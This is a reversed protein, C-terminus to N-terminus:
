FVINEISYKMRIIGKSDDKSSQKNLKIENEKEEEEITKSKNFLPISIKSEEEKETNSTNQKKFEEFKKNVYDPKVYKVILENLFDQSRIYVDIWSEGNIPKFKRQPIGKKL